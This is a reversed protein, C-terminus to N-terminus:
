RRLNRPLTLRGSRDSKVPRILIRWPWQRWSSSINGHLTRVFGEIKACPLNIARDKILVTMKRERQKHFEMIFSAM